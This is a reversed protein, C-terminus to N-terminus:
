VTTAIELADALLAQATVEAGAGPGSIVLPREHYRATTLVFLNDAGSLTACPHDRRVAQPGVQAKGTRDLTAIYRLVKGQAAAEAYQRAIQADVEDIRAFFDEAPLATLEAPVLGQVVVDTEEIAIGAARALILLKRAVDGGSLDARPDPETYGRERAEALLESFPRSGDYANFLFSLSGSFVGELALLGDGAGQLRRLTKLVPLGAGVTAADGYQTKGARCGSRVERWRALSTGQAIKNASVVHVGAALWEAHRRAVSEAPTADILIKVHADSDQLAAVAAEVGLPKGEWNLRATATDPTIGEADILVSRSNAVAVLRLDDGCAPHQQLQRLLAGGVLGTGVVAVALKATGHCLRAHVANLAAHAHDGAILVSLGHDHSDQFSGLIPVRLDALATYLAAMRRADGGFGARVARLLALGARWEVQAFPGLSGAFAPEARSRDAATIVLDLSRRANCQVLARPQVGARELASLVLSGAVGRVSVSVTDEELTVARAAGCGTPVGVIRSGPQRADRSSRVLVPVNARRLPRLTDPHLVRAGAAALEEAEAYSLEPATRARRILRPDASLVGAVDKWVTLSEADLLRAFAAASLDSGNRGLTAAGGDRSRAVFGPAVILAEPWRASAAAVLRASEDWAIADAGRQTAEVLLLERADVDQAEVGRQRLAAVLLRSSWYEGIGAIRDVLGYGGRPATRVQALLWALEEGDRQFGAALTRAEDPALAHALATHQSILLEVGARDPEGARAREFLGLLADTVGRVASVVVFCRVPAESQLIDLVRRFGELDELCSGGFKHVRWRLEGQRAIEDLWPAAAGRADVVVANM